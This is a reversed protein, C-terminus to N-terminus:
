APQDSAAEGTRGPLVLEIAGDRGGMGTRELAHWTRRAAHREEQGHVYAVVQPLAREGFSQVGYEAQWAFGVVQPGREAHRLLHSSSGKMRGVVTSVAVSPPISLAVHVHDPMPGVAPVIAKSEGAAARIAGVLVEGAGADLFPARGKTAWVLHYFLRWYPM